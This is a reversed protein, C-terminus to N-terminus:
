HALFMPDILEGQAKLILAQQGAGAQAYDFRFTHVGRRMFRSGTVNTPGHNNDNDIVLAGDVYLLSADDSTLDFQVYGTERVVIQGQCRVMYLNTWVARLAPPLINVGVNAPADPQNVESNLLFTAQQSLTMQTHGGATAQIRDGANTIKYLTCSLGQSLATQGLTLRYDNEDAIIKNVDAQASDIPPPAIIPAAPGQPGQIGMDGQPGCATMSLAALLGLVTLVQKM